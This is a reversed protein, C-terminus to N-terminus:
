LPAIILWMVVCRRQFFHNINVSLLICSYSICSSVVVHCLNDNKKINKNDMCVYVYLVFFLVFVILCLVINCTYM